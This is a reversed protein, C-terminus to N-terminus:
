LINACGMFYFKAKAKNSVEALAKKLKKSKHWVDLSHLMQPYQTEVSHVISCATFPIIYM